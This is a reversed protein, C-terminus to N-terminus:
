AAEKGAVSAAESLIIDCLANLLAMFILCHPRFLCETVEEGTPMYSFYFNSFGYMDKAPVKKIWYGPYREAVQTAENLLKTFLAQYRENAMALPYATGVKQSWYIDYSDVLLGDDCCEELLNLIELSYVSDKTDLVSNLDAEEIDSADDTGLEERLTDMDYSHKEWGLAPLAASELAGMVSGCSWLAEINDDAMVDDEDVYPCELSCESLDVTVGIGWEKLLGLTIGLAIKRKPIFSTHNVESMWGVGSSGVLACNEYFLHVLSEFQQEIEEYTFKKMFVVKRASVM